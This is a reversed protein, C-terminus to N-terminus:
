LHQARWDVSFIEESDDDSSLDEKTPEKRAVESIDSSKASRAAAVLEMKKKRLAEVKEM